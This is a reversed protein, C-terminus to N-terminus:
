ALSEVQAAFDGFQRQLEEGVFATVVGLNQVVLSARANLRVFEESYRITNLKALDGRVLLFGNLEGGHPELIFAEFSDIEGQQQLGTYHEIAEGFVQLAKQERGSITPGYGIFLAAKTM